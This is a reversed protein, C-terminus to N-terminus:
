YMQCNIYDKVKIDDRARLSLEWIRDLYSSLDSSQYVVLLDRLALCSCTCLIISLSVTYMYICYMIYYMYNFATIVSVHVHM